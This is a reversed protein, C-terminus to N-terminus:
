QWNKKTQPAILRVNKITVPKEVCNYVAAAVVAMVLPSIGKQVDPKAITESQETKPNNYDIINKVNSDAKNGAVVPSSKNLRSLVLGIAKVTIIIMILTIM